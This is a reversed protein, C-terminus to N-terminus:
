AKFSMTVINVDSCDCCIFALAELHRLFEINVRSLEVIGHSKRSHGELFASEAVKIFSRPVAAGEDGNLLRLTLM